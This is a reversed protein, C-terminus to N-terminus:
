LSPAVGPTYARALDTRNRLPAKLEVKIKGGLHILFTSDSSTSHLCSSPSSRWPVEGSRSRILQPDGVDGFM